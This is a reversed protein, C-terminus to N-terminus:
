SVKKNNIQPKIAKYYICDGNNQEHLKRDVKQQNLNFSKSNRKTCTQGSHKSTTKSKGGKLKLMLKSFMGKSKKKNKFTIKNQNNWNPSIPFPGYTPFSRSSMTM